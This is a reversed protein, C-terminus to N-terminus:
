FGNEVVVEDLSLQGPKPCLDKTGKCIAVMPGMVHDEPLNFREKVKEIDFGIMPCSGYGM